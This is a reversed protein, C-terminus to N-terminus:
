KQPAPFKINARNLGPYQAANHPCTMDLRFASKSYGSFDKLASANEAYKKLKQNSYPIYKHEYPFCLRRLTTTTRLSGLDKCIKYWLSCPINSIQLSIAGVIGQNHSASVCYLPGTKLNWFERLPNSKWRLNLNTIWRERALARIRLVYACFSMRECPRPRKWTVTERDRTLTADSSQPVKQWLYKRTHGPPFRPFGSASGMGQLSWVRGSICLLLRLSLLVLVHENRLINYYTRILYYVYVFRCELRAPRSYIAQLLKVLWRLSSHGNHM